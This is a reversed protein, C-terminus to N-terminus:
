EGPGDFLLGLAAADKLRAPFQKRYKRALALLNQALPDAARREIEKLNEDLLFFAFVLREVPMDAYAAIRVLATMSLPRLGAEIRSYVPQSIHLLEAMESQTLRNQTRLLRLLSGFELM